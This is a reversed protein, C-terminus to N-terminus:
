VVSPVPELRLTVSQALAEIDPADTNEIHEKLLWFRWMAYLEPYRHGLKALDQHASLIQHLCM